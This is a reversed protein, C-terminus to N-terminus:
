LFLVVAFFRVDGLLKFIVFLFKCCGSQGFVM